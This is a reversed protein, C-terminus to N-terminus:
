PVQRGRETIVAHKQCKVAQLGITQQAKDEKTLTLPVSIHPPCLFAQPFKLCETFFSDMGRTSFEILFLFTKLYAEDIKRDIVSAAGVDPVIFFSVFM